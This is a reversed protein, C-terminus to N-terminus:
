FPRKKRVVDGYSDDYGYANPLRRKKNMGMQQNQVGQHPNYLGQAPLYQQQPNFLQTNFHQQPQNLRNLPNYQNLNPYHSQQQQQQQQQQNQYRPQHHVGQNSQHQQQQRSEQQQGSKRQTGEQNLANFVNPNAQRPITKSQASGERHGGRTNGLLQTLNAAPPQNTTVTGWQTKLNFESVNDNWIGRNFKENNDTQIGLARELMKITRSGAYFRKDIYDFMDESLAPPPLTVGNLLNTNHLKPPPNFFMLGIVANENINGLVESDFVKAYSENVKFSNPYGFVSGGTETKQYELIARAKPTHIEDM